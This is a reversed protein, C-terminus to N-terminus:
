PATANEHVVYVSEPQTIGVGYAKVALIEFQYNESVRGDFTEVSSADVFVGTRETDVLLAKDASVQSTMYVRVPGFNQVMPVDGAESTGFNISDVTDSDTMLNAWTTPNTVMLDVMADNDAAGAISDVMDTFTLTSSSGLYNYNSNDGYETDGKTGAKEIENVIDSDVKRAIARGAQEMRYALLDVNAKNILQGSFTTRVGVWDISINKGDYDTTDESLSGDSNLTSATLQNGTPVTISDTGNDLEFQISNIADLGILQPELAQEIMDAQLTTYLDADDSVAESQRMQDAQEAVSAWRERVSDREHSEAGEVIAQGVDAVKEKEFAGFQRTM